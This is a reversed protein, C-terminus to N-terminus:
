GRNAPVFFDRAAGAGPAVDNWDDILFDVVLTAATPYRRFDPHAPPTAPLLGALEAIGPNHGILMVSDGTASRLAALMQEPGAMYLEQMFRITPMIQLPAAMVHAWTERTRRAASCLVEDPEYGRSDLWEGLELAAIRGRTNLPRDFDATAPDDWSSKAHRTLILRKQGPPMM